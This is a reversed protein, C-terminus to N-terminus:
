WKRCGINIGYAQGSGRESEKEVIERRQEVIMAYLYIYIVGYKLIHERKKQQKEWHITDYTRMNTMDDFAAHQMSYHM